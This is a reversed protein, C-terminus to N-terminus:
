TTEVNCLKALNTILNGTKHHPTEIVYTLEEESNKYLNIIIDKEGDLYFRGFFNDKKM